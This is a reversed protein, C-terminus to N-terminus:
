RSAIRPHANDASTRFPLSFLSSAVRHPHMQRRRENLRRQPLAHVSSKPLLFIITPKLQGVFWGAELHPEGVEASAVM